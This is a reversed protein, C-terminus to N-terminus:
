LAELNRPDIQALKKPSIKLARPKKAAGNTTKASKNKTKTQTAM